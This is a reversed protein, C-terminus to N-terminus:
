LDDYFTSFVIGMMKVVAIKKIMKIMKKQLSKKRWKRHNKKQNNKKQNNKKKNIKNIILKHLKEKRKRKNLLYDWSLRKMPEESYLSKELDM